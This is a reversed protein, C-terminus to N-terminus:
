PKDVLLEPGIQSVMKVKKSFGPWHSVIKLPPGFVQIISDNTVVPTAIMLFLCYFEFNLHSKAPLVLGWADRPSNGFQARMGKVIRHFKIGEAVAVPNSQKNKGFRKASIREEITLKYGGSDLFFEWSKYMGNPLPLPLPQNDHELKSRNKPKPQSPKPPTTPSSNLDVLSQPPDLSGNPKKKQNNTKTTKTTKSATKATKMTKRTKTPLKVEEQDSYLHHDSELDIVPRKTGKVKRVYSSRLNPNVIQLLLHHPPGLVHPVLLSVSAFPPVLVKQKTIPSM